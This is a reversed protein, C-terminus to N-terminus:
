DTSVQSCAYATTFLPASFVPTCTDRQILAKTNEPYIGLLAIVPDSPLETKLRDLVTWVTKRLPRALKREWWCRVLTGERRTRALVHKGHQQNWGNRCTRPSLGNYNQNAHGQHYTIILMKEHTQRGDPHRSQLFLQEHRRGM